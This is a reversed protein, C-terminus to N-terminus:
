LPTYSLSKIKLQWPASSVDIGNAGAWNGGIALNIILYYPQNYPWDLPNDSNKTRSTYPKGDLTFTIKNPTKIVGFRHFQM